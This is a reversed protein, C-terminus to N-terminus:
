HEQDRKRTAWMQIGTIVAVVVTGIILVAALVDM